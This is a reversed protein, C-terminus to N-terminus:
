LLRPTIRAPAPAGHGKPQEATRGENADHVRKQDAPSLEANDLVEQLRERKIPRAMIDGGKPFRHYPVIYKLM